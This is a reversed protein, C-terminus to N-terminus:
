TKLMWKLKKKSTKKDKLMKQHFTREAEKEFSEDLCNEPDYLITKLLKIEQESSTIKLDNEKLNKIEDLNFLETDSQEVHENKEYWLEDPDVLKKYKEIESIFWAICHMCNAKILKDANTCTNQLSSTKLCIIRRQVNIDESGFNPLQNTTIYFPAENEICKATKHKVSKVMFGGQLVSKAMDSQLTYESWGHLVVLQTHEEIMAAAFQREQTISAVDTMPIIGLLVNIWSTKGSDKPGHVVLKRVKHPM